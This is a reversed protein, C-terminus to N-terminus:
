TPIFLSGLDTQKNDGEEYHQQNIAPIHTWEGILDGDIM